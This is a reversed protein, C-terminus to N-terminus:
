QHKQLHRQRRRVVFLIRSTHPALVFCRSGTHGCKPCRQWQCHTHLRRMEPLLRHGNSYAPLVHELESSKASTTSLRQLAMTASSMRRQQFYSYRHKNPLRAQTIYCIASQQTQKGNIHVPSRHPPRAATCAETAKLTEVHRLPAIHNRLAISNSAHVQPHM